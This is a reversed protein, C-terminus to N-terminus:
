DCCIEVVVIMLILWKEVWCLLWLLMVMVVISGVSVWGCVMSM